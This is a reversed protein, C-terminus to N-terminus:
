IGRKRDSNGDYSAQPSASGTAALSNWLLSNWAHRVRINRSFEYDNRIAALM